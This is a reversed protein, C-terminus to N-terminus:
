TQESIYLRARSQILKAAEQASKQGAFFAAAETKVINYINLNMDVTKTASDIVALLKDAQEQSLAYLSFDMAAEGSSFSVGGRSVPIREGNEDLLYHGEDDTEYEVEMAKDLKKQFAARNVPLSYFSDRSQYDETLFGRLFDWAANKDACTSSMACGETLYLINGSGHSTPFGIYTVQGAFYQENIVVTELDYIGSQMLMQKGEAIRTLDNEDPDAEYNPDQPFRGVFELLQVFDESDFRCTGAGWDVFSEMDTFLLLMLMSERDVYPGLPTCGEPMKALAADFDAFTWGPEEGVVDSAGLLSMVSFGPSVQYLGGRVEAAALVNEFFDERSLEGDGDLWPYLDELLGKAALQVYPLGDLDLLDPMDGAMIETTLKTLAETEDDMNAALNVYDSYDKVVSRVTDHSRNFKLVARSLDEPYLAGLTLLTKGEGAPRASKRITVQQPASDEEFDMSLGQMAGDAAIALAQLSQGDLDCDLMDLLKEGEREELRYGYLGTGTRYYFAYDGSGAYLSEIFDTPLREGFSQGEADVPFVGINNGDWMEAGVTGDALRVLNYIWGDVPIQAALDGDAAFVLLSGSDTPCYLRGAEDAAAGWSNLYDLGEPVALLVTELARSERDLRHLAYRSETKVYDWYEESREPRLGEPGEYWSVTQNELALLGGEPGPYLGELSSSVQWRQRNETNEPEPLAEYDLARLGGDEEVKYLRYGFRDYQGEYEPTVGEPIEGEALKEYCGLFLGAETAAWNEPQAGEPLSLDRYAAAYFSATEEPAASEAAPAAEKESGCAALGLCLALLLVFSIIKKM